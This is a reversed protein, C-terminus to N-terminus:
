HRRPVESRQERKLMAALALKVENYCMRSWILNYYAQWKKTKCVSRLMISMCTNLFSDKCQVSLMNQYSPWNQGRFRKFDDPKNDSEFSWGRIGWFIHCYFTLKFSAVLWTMQLLFFLAIVFKWLKIASLPLFGLLWVSKLFSTFGWTDQKSSLKTWM